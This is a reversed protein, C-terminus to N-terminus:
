RLEYVVVIGGTGAGGNAGSDGAEAGGGGAGYGSGAVGHNGDASVDGPMPAGFGFGLPASGGAKGHNPFNKLLGGGSQGSLNIQGGTGSGGAGDTTGSGGAGGSASCHSGFSSTGGSTGNTPSPNGVGGAGAAGVTVTESVISTVDIIKECYGGGGGGGGDGTAGGRGAGGGGGGVCIVRLYKVGTPKTWTGSGTFVQMSVAGIGGAGLNSPKVKKAASASVDYTLVFDAAPDPTTDEGLGNVVKLLNALTLKDAAAASADYLLIEDDTAPASEATLQAVAKFLDSLAIKRNALASLDYIPLTDSAAPGGLSALGDIDLGTTSIGLTARAVAADTDDLLTAAFPSVSVGDASGAAVTPAGSGDFALFKGARAVSSPIEAALGIGDGKPFKLARDIEEGAEQLSMTLRDLGQEHTEAPFPDHPTYDIEQTRATKRRIVWQVASSPAGGLATVTGGAGGGGSVSYHTALSKVTEAGTAIVREIVEIESAAFFAFGTAFATTVGNGTYTVRTVTSSVTM